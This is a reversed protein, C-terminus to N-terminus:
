VSKHKRIREYEALDDFRKMQDAAFDRMWKPFKRQEYPVFGEDYLDKNIVVGSRKLRAQTMAQSLMNAQNSMFKQFNSNSM